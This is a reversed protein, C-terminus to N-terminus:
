IEVMMCIRKRGNKEGIELLFTNEDVETKDFALSLETMGCFESKGLFTNLPKVPLIKTESNTIDKVNQVKVYGNNEFTLSIVTM